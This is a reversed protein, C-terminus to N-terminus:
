GGCGCPWHGCHECVKHSWGLQKLKFDTIAKNAETNGFEKAIQRLTISIINHSHTKVNVTKAECRITTRLARLQVDAQLNKVIVETLSM